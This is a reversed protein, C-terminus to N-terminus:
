LWAPVNLAPLLKRCEVVEGPRRVVLDGNEGIDRRVEIEPKLKSAPCSLRDSGNYCLTLRMRARTTANPHYQPLSALARCRLPQNPSLGVFPRGYCQSATKPRAPRAAGDMPRPRYHAAGPQFQLVTGDPEMRRAGQRVRAVPLPPIRRPM